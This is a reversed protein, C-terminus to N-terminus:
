PCGAAPAALRRYVRAIHGDASGPRDGCVVTCGVLEFCTAQIYKIGVIPTQVIMFDGPESERAEAAEITEFVPATM